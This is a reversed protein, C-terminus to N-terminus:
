AASSGISSRRRYASGATRSTPTGFRMRCSTTRKSPWSRADINGYTGVLPVNPSSWTPLTRTMPPVRLGRRQVGDRVLRDAEDSAACHYRTLTASRNPSRPPPDADAVYRDIWRLRRGLETHEDLNGVAGRLQAAFAALRKYRSSAAALRLFRKARAREERARQKALAIRRDREAQEARAREEEARRAKHALAAEISSSSWATSSGSWPCNRGIACRSAGFRDSSVCSSNAQLHRRM